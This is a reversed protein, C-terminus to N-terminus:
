LTERAYTLPLKAAIYSPRYTPTGDPMFEVCMGIIQYTDDDIQVQGAILNELSEVLAGSIEIFSTDGHHDIRITGDDNKFFTIHGIESM